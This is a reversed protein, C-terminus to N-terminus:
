AEDEIVRLYEVDDVPVPDLSAPLTAASGNGFHEAIAGKIFALIAAIPVAWAVDLDFFEVVAGASLVQLATWIGREIIDAKRRLWDKMTTGKLHEV